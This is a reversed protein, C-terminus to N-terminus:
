TTTNTGVAHDIGKFVPVWPGLVTAAPALIASSFLLALMTMLCAARRTHFPASTEKM